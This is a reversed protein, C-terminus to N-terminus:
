VKPKGTSERVILEPMLMLRNIHNGSMMQEMVRCVNKGIALRDQRITTLSPTTYAALPLDDFGTVSIDKPVRLGARYLERLVAHALLDSACVIATAGERVVHSVFKSACDTKYDGCAILEQRVNLGCKKMGLQFGTLQEQSIHNPAEVNLMAINKHGLRALHEVAYYIGQQHDVGVCSVNKNYVVHDLLVTPIETKQMQAIFDDHLTLGLLFGAAYHNARMYEDYHYDSKQNMAMPVISVDWKKATAELKFGVIIDYGFQEVREYRMDEIFVCIKTRGESTRKQKPVYGMKMATNLILQRTKDSIDSAGSLGKSVTSVSLNLKNAIDKITVM